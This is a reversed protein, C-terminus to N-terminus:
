EGSQRREIAKKVSEVVAETAGPEHREKFWCNLDLHIPGPTVGISGGGAASVTVGASRLASAVTRTWSDLAADDRGLERAADHTGFATLTDRAARRVFREDELYGAVLDVQQPSLLQFALLLLWLREDSDAPYTEAARVLEFARREDGDTRTARDVGVEYPLEDISVDADGREAALRELATFLRSLSRFAVETDDDHHVRVVYGELPGSNCLCFPNSDNSGTFAVYGLRNGPEGASLAPLYERMEDLSLLRLGLHDLDAGDAAHLLWRFVVSLSIGADREFRAIEAATAGGNSVAGLRDLIDSWPNDSAM